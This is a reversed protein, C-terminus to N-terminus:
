NHKRSENKEKFHKLLDAFEKTLFLEFKGDTIFGECVKIRLKIKTTM